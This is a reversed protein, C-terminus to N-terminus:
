AYGSSSTRPRSRQSLTRQLIQIPRWLDPLSENFFNHDEQLKTCNISYFVARLFFPLQYHDIKRRRWNWLRFENSHIKTQYAPEDCAQLGGNLGQRRRPLM